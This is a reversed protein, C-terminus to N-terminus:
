DDGVLALADVDGVAREKLVTEHRTVEVEDLESRPEDHTDAQSHYQFDFTYM